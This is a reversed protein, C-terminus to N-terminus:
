SRGVENMGGGNIHEAFSRPLCHSPSTSVAAVAAVFVFL